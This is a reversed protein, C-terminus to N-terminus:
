EGKCYTNIKEGLERERKSARRVKEQAAKAAIRDKTEWVKVIERTAEAYDRYIQAFGVKYEQLTPDSIEMKEINQAAQEIEDAAALWTKMDIEQGSKTLTKTEKTIEDAMKFIKQCQFSKSEACGSILYNLLIVLAIIKKTQGIKQCIGRKILM